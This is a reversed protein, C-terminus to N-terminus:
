KMSFYHQGSHESVEHITVIQPHDLNAIAEAENKFRRIEEEGAWLGARIMKLAVPRNLSVQRAKYVVGMGGRGLVRSLEYDGFHRRRSERTLTPGSGATAATAASNEDPLAPGHSFGVTEAQSGGGAGSAATSQFPSVMRQFRGEDAFYARLDEALDPHEA